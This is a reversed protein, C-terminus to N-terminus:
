YKIIKTDLWTFSKKDVNVRVSTPTIKGYPSDLYIDTGYFNLAEIMACFDPAIFTFDETRMKCLNNEPNRHSHFQDYLSPEFQNELFTYPFNSRATQFPVVPPEVARAKCINAGNWQYIKWGSCQGNRIVAHGRLGSELSNLVRQEMGLIYLPSYDTASNLLEGKRSDLGLPNWEVIDNYLPSVRNGDTDNVDYSYQFRGYSAYEASLDYTYCISDLSEFVLDGIDGVNEMNEDFWVENEFILVGGRIRCKAAYFPQLSEIFSIMNVNPRNELLLEYNPCINDGDKYQMAIVTTKDYNPLDYITTSQFTLGASAARSILLDPVVFGPAQKDCGMIGDVLEPGLFPIDVGPILNILFIVINISELIGLIVDFLLRSFGTLSGACYELHPTRITLHIDNDLVRTRNLYNFAQNDTDLRTLTTIMECQDPCYIISEHTLQYELPIDLCCGITVVVDVVTDCGEDLDGFFLGELYTFADKRFTFNSSISKTVIKNSDDLQYTLDNITEIEVTDKTYDIGNLTISNAM